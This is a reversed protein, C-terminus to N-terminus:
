SPVAQTGTPGVGIINSVWRNFKTYVPFKPATSCCSPSLVKPIFGATFFDEQLLQDLTPRLEPDNHLCKQIFKQASASMTQPLVYNNNTIRVYTEKLTSTEFPPRGVLLAYRCSLTDTLYRTQLLFTKTWFYEFFTSNSKLIGYISSTKCNDYCCCLICSVNEDFSLFNEKCKHVLSFKGQMCKHVIKLVSYSLEYKCIFHCFLTYKCISSVHSFVWTVCGLAWVDAEYSHGRKQLVEPAIYNPTGCVTRCVFLSTNLANLLFISLFPDQIKQHYNQLYNQHFNQIKSSPKSSFTWRFSCRCSQVHIM